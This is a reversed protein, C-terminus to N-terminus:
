PTPPHFTVRVSGRLTESLVRKQHKDVRLPERFKVVVGHATDARVVKNLLRGNLFVDRPGLGDGVVHVRGAAQARRATFRRRDRM